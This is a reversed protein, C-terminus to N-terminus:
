PDGQRDGVADGDRRGTRAAAPEADPEGAADTGVPVDVRLSMWGRLHDLGDVPLHLLSPRDFTRVTSPVGSSGRRGPPSSATSM